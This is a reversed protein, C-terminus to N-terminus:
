LASEILEKTYGTMPNRLIVDAPGGELVNGKYLVTIEDAMYNIVGFDHSIFLYATGFERQLEKMLNLIQAQVSVDLASVCEDCVIVEPNVLLARAIAVRQLQGGSLESPYKKMTSASLAVRELMEAARKEADAEHWADEILKMPEFLVKRINFYPNMSGKPSQFIFQVNRRFVRYEKRSMERIDRGKYYVRGATPRQLDGLIEGLTSKGSGSEGVLGMTRGIKVSLSVGNVATFGAPKSLLGGNKVAFKKLINEGHIVVAM